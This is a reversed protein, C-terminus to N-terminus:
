FHKFLLWFFFTFILCAPSMHRFKPNFLIKLYLFFHIVFLFSLYLFSNFPIAHIDFSILSLSLFHPPFVTLSDSCLQVCASVADIDPSDAADKLWPSHCASLNRQNVCLFIVKFKLAIITKTNVNLSGVRIVALSYHPLFFFLCCVFCFMRGTCGVLPLSWPVVSVLPASAVSTDPISVDPSGPTTGSTHPTSSATLVRPDNSSAMITNRRKWTRSGGLYVARVWAAPWSGLRGRGLATAVCARSPLRM